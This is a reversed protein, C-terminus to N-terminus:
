KHADIYHIAKQIMSDINEESSNLSLHDKTVPEFENKLKLYVEYNAESNIRPKELREKITREPATVEIYFIKQGSKDAEVEFRSRLSEKYFTGDLVITKIGPITQKMMELMADYVDRKEKETYTRKPLIKLRLEDTSLYTAGLKLGLRSAFYSKGSGPLGFVIIIM